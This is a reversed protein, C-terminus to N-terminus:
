PQLPRLLADHRRRRGEGDVLVFSKLVSLGSSQLRYVQLSSPRAAATHPRLRRGRLAGAHVRRRRPGGHKPVFGNSDSESVEQLTCLASLLTESLTSVDKCNCGQLTRARESCSFQTAARVYSARTRRGFKFSLKLYKLLYNILFILM